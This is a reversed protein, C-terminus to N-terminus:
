NHLNFMAQALRVTETLTNSSYTKIAAAFLALPVSIMRQLGRVQARSSRQGALRM